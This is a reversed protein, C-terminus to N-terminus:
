GIQFGIQNSYDATNIYALPFKPRLSPTANSDDATCEFDGSNATGFTGGSLYKTGSGNTPYGSMNQKSVCVIHDDNSYPAGSYASDTFFEITVKYGDCSGNIGGDLTSSPTTSSDVVSISNDGIEFGSFVFGSRTFSRLPKIAVFKDCAGVLVSGQAYTFGGSGGGTTVTTTTNTGNSGNAGNAGNCIYSKTLTYDTIETGGNSCTGRAGTFSFAIVSGGSAGNCVYSTGTSSIAKLGGNTCNGEAGTFAAVEVGAGAAGAPGTAGDRGNAGDAGDRGPAGDRGNEGKVYVLEQNANLLRTTSGTVAESTATTTDAYAVGVRALSLVLLVIAFKKM